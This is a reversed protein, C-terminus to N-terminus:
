FDSTNEESSDLLFINNLNEVRARYTMWGAGDYDDPTLEWLEVELEWYSM